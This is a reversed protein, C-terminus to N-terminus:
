EVAKRASIKGSWAGNFTLENQYARIRYRDGNRKILKFMDGADICPDGRWSISYDVPSLYYTALWDDLLSALETTDVLPNSWSVAKSGNSNYKHTVAVNDVVYEYGSVTYTLTTSKTLGSFEIMCYYAGSETVKATVDKNDTAVTYGYSANTIDAKIKNNTPSVTVKESLLEKKESSKKYVQKNVTISKLKDQVTTTPSDYMDDDSLEYNSVDGAGIYDVTVRANPMGKTFTIVAKDASGFHMTYDAYNLGDIDTVTVDDVKTEGDYTSVNFEQVAVNRFNILLGYWSYAYGFALTITPKTAFNGNSDAVEKSVYGTTKYDGDRPMFLLSNDLVSFGRSCLAYATKM